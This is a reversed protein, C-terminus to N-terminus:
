ANGRSEPVCGEMMSFRVFHCVHRVFHCVQRVLPRAPRCDGREDCQRECNGQDGSAGCGRGRLLDARPAVAGDVHSRVVVRDVHDVFCRHLHRPADRGGGADGVAEVESRVVLGEVHAVRRHLVDLHDVEHFPARDVGERQAFAVGPHADARHRHIGALLVDQERHAAVGLQEVAELDAVELQHAHVQVRVLHGVGDGQGEVLLPLADVEHEGRIAFEEVEEATVDDGHLRLVEGLDIAPLQRTRKLLSEPADVQVELATGEVLLADEGVQEAHRVRHLAPAHHPM